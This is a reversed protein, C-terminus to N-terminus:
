TTIFVKGNRMMVLKADYIPKETEKVVFTEYKYPNYTVEVLDQNEFLHEINECVLGLVGAHVNKRKEEKVKANGSQSVKFNVDKLYVLDCHKVVRKTKHDRVSWTGTHLNRYVFVKQDVSLKENRLEM